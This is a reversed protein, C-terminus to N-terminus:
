REDGVSWDTEACVNFNRRTWRTDHSGFARLDYFCTGRGDDFNINQFQGPSLTGILWDRGGPDRVNYHSPVAYVNIVTRYQSSNTLRVWRDKGDNTQAPADSTPAILIACLLAGLVFKRM